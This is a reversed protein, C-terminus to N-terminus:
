VANPRYTITLRPRESVTSTERTTFDAGSSNSYDQIILGFNSNPNDIWAQVAAIGAANLSLQYLGKDTPSISGIATTGHDGTGQAGAVAWASGNMAQNWTAANEDWQRLMAYLEYTQSSTNTINLQITVSEVVSGAPVQSLDWALLVSDDPRGDFDIETDSGYNTNQSKTTIRTDRTGNYGAVGDQISVTVPDSTTNVVVTMTDSVNFEGDNATLRLVYSGAESFTATTDVASANGFNVTGPGSVKTWATTVSNSPLGDDSVTGDLAASAGFGISRNPGADVSPAVNVPEAAVQITVEDFTSFEVDNATLRLVYTGAQSFSATTDVASANGFNVTGPGSIKTWTTTVSNTPLGDDTVTGNLTASSPLQISQNSGANVNPAQNTPAAAQVTITVEDFSQLQGDNATLRLVYTGAQSFTATTDVASANGFNVTGPGSIRTWTTTVSNSPLGDDSVTGDLAAFGPLQISQNSGANVSPAENTPPPNGIPGSPRYTITLKPRQSATSGERTTFDAGSSNSYDQIIFGHNMSPDNIWKQVAAIGAANLTIQYTGMSSAALAGLATTGHDGNGQAGASAWPSGSAAQNWTASMEDWARLM